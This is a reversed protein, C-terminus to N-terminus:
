LANLAKMVGVVGPSFVPRFRRQGSLKVVQDNISKMVYRLCHLVVDSIFNEYFLDRADYFLNSCANCVSLLNYKLTSFCQVSEVRGYDKMIDNLLTLLAQRHWKQHVYVLDQSLLPEALRVQLSDKDYNVYVPDQITYPSVFDCSLDVNIKTVYVRM